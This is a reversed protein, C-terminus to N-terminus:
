SLFYVSLIRPIYFYSYSYSYIITGWTEIKTVQHITMGIVFVSFESTLKPVFFIILIKFM